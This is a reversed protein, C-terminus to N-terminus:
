MIINDYSTFFLYYVEGCQRMTFIYYLCAHPQKENKICITYLIILFYNSINEYRM